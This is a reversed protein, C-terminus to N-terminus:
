VNDLRSRYLSNLRYSLKSSRREIECSQRDNIFSLDKALLIQTILEMLSGYAIEYFRLQDKPSRRASGEALNSPISIAARRLQSTLGYKKSEPFHSTLTYVEKVLIRAEQWVELKEFPYQFSM